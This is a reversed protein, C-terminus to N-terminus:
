SFFFLVLFEEDDKANKISELDDGLIKEIKEKTVENPFILMAVFIFALSFISIAVVYIMMEASM